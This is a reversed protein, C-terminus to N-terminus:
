KNIYKLGFKTAQREFWISEYPKVFKKGTKTLYDRYWFRIVSPITVIFLTLPGFIINQLTHGSEHLMLHAIPIIPHFDFDKYKAEECYTEFCNHAIFFVCGISFGWDSGFAKPFVGFLRGKYIRVKGVILSFLLIIMGIFSALFGWTFSIIYFLWKNKEIFRM